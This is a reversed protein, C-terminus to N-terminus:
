IKLDIVNIRYSKAICPAFSVEISAMMGTTYATEIKPLVNAHIYEFDKLTQYTACECNFQECRVQAM